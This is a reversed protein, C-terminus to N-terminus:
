PRLLQPPPTATTVAALDPGWCPRGAGGGCRVEQGSRGEGGSLWRMARARRQAGAGPTQHERRAEASRGGGQQADGLTVEGNQADLLGRRVRGGWESQALRSHPCPGPATGLDPDWDPMARLMVGLGGYWAPAVVKGQQARLPIPALVSVKGPSAAGLASRALQACGRGQPAGWMAGLEPVRRESEWLARSGGTALAHEPTCVCVCICLCVSMHICLCICVRVHVCVCVCGWSPGPPNRHVGVGARTYVAARVGM